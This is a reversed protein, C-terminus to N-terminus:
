TPKVLVYLAGTGGDYQQASCYAKVIHQHRLHGSVVNKLTAGKSSHLGKGHIILLCTLKNAPLQLLQTNVLQIAKLQTLGHLDITQDTAYRKGKKLDRLVKDQWGQRLFYLTEDDFLNTKGDNLTSINQTAEPKLQSTAARKNIQKKLLNTNCPKATKEIPSHKQHLRRVGRMAQKFNIDDSPM